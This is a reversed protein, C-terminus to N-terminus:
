EKIVEAAKLTQLPIKADLAKAIALNVFLKGKKNQVVPIDAPRTGELIRIATAAAWEGQESALKGYTIMAFPAMFDYLAGTPVKTNARVFAKQDAEQEDYLGGNSAIMIMDTKEQLALYGKKWDEYDKAFYSEMELGFTKTINEAEKHATTIDPGIFGIRNGKAHVKLQKMLPEVLSVEVMGTINKCPLGYGSADWNVGCFVFPLDKEKFFPVILYKAANDDACIVVDPKYEEIVAKAADAATKKSDEDANRKTDMRHIKLEYENGLVSKIGDVIGDSWAYGEHYSDIHLVKKEAGHTCNVTALMLTCMLVLSKARM